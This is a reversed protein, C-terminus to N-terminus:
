CARMYIYLLLDIYSNSGVTDTADKIELEIPYIVSM